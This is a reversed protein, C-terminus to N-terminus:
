ASSRKAEGVVAREIEARAGSVGLHLVVFHTLYLDGFSTARLFHFAIDAVSEDDHWTTMIEYARDQATFVLDILDHWAECRPGGCLAYRCGADLLSEALNESLSLGHDWLLCAFPGTLTLKLEAGPAVEESYVEIGDGEFLPRM